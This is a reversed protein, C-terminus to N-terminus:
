FNVNNFNLFQKISLAVKEATNQRNIINRMRGSFEMQVINSLNNQTNDNFIRSGFVKTINGGSFYIENNTIYNLNNSPFADLGNSNLISGFSNNGFIFDKVLNININNNNNDRLLKDFTFSLSGSNNDIYTQLRSNLITYGLHIFDGNRNINNNFEYSINERGHGHIDFIFANNFNDISNQIAVNIYNYFEFWTNALLKDNTAYSKNNEKLYIYRNFEVKSRKINGIIIYPYKGTLKFIENRIQYVLQSTNSDTNNEISDTFDNQNRTPLGEINKVGGHPATLIIPLNGPIYEILNFQSFYKINLKYNLILQKGFLLGNKKDNGLTSPVYSYNNNFDNQLILSNTYINKMSKFSLKIVYKNIENELLENNEIFESENLNNVNNLLGFLIYIDNNKTIINSNFINSFLSAKGSLNTLGYQKRWLISKIIQNNNFSDLIQEYDAVFICDYIKSNLGSSLIVMNNEENYTLKPNLQPNISKHTIEDFNLQGEIENYSDDTKILRFLKTEFDYLITQSRLNNNILNTTQIYGCTLLMKNGIRIFGMGYAFNLRTNIGNERSPIFILNNENDRTTEFSITKNTLNISISNIVRRESNIVNGNNDINAGGFCYIKNNYFTTAFMVHKIISASTTFKNWSIGKNFSIWIHTFGGRFELDTSKSYWGGLLFLRNNIEDYILRSEYVGNINDVNNDIFVDECIRTWTKGDDTSKICDKLYNSKIGREYLSENSYFLDSAGGVIIWEDNIKISAHGYRKFEESKIDWEDNMNINDLIKIQNSLEEIQNNNILITEELENIKNNNNNLENTLNIINNELNIIRQELENILKLNEEQNNNINNELILLQNNLNTIENNKEILQNNLNTIENNKETIQNNLNIIENNKETIQNNLNTIENNKEIIQNELEDKENNLIIIQANLQNIIEEDENQQIINELEEIKSIKEELLIELNQKEIELESNILLLNNNNNILVNKEEELKLLQNNLINLNLKVEDLEENLNNIINDLNEINEIKENVLNEFNIIDENLKNITEELENIEINQNNLEMELNNIRLKLNNIKNDYVCKDIILCGKM